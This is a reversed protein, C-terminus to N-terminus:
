DSIVGQTLRADDTEFLVFVAGPQRDVLWSLFTSGRKPSPYGSLPVPLAVSLAVFLAAFPSCFPCFPRWSVSPPAAALCPTRIRRITAEFLICSIIGSSSDRPSFSELSSSSRSRLCPSYYSSALLRCAVPSLHTHTVSHQEMLLANCPPAHDHIIM